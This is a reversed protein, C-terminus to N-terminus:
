AAGDAEADGDIDAMICFYWDIICALPPAEAPAIAEAPEGDGDISDIYWFM